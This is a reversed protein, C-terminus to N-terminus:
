LSGGGHYIAFYREYFKKPSYEKEFTKRIQNGMDANAATKKVAEALAVEDPMDFKGLDEDSFCEEVAPIRSAVVKCGFAAAELLSIPFGESRSPLAYIDYYPLYRSAEKRMGAFCVRGAGGLAKALNEFASREKGDGAIFLRYESPLLALAKLMVDVGKRYLLVCNMGILIGEGKFLCIEQLEADTLKANQPNIIRTNYAYTLKRKPVFPQYYGMMDKSLCVVQDFPLKSILYLLGLSFGKLRGYLDMFDQFCYCHLTTVLRTRRGEVNKWRHFGHGLLYLEPGIGHAHIMDFGNLDRAKTLKSVSCSFAMEKEADKLYFVQCSHGHEVMVEVLDSIVQNVGTQGIHNTLYAIKM